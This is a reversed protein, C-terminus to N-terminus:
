EPYKLQNEETFKRIISCMEGGDLRGKEGILLMKFEDLLNDFVPGFVGDWGIHCEYTKRYLEAYLEIGNLIQLIASEWQTNHTGSLVGSLSVLPMMNRFDDMADQHQLLQKNM